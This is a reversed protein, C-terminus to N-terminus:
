IEGYRYKTSAEILQIEAASLDFLTYVRRNLDTELHIITQTRQHYQAQKQALWEEWEDREALPIDRKFSKKLEARFAPFDLNWWAALKQNLPYGPPILDTLLRHHAQRHLHYRAQAQETLALALQGIAEREAAPADPIPLRSIFQASLTYRLLGGREGIPICLRSIAFWTVRTMLIGLLYPNKGPIMFTTKNGVISPEALAFRPTKAMEPWFIKYGEFDAYYNCPRLEWWYTGKDARKQGPETFPALHQAITPHKASLESWAKDETLGPGFINNTWRDPLLILWHGEDEIHWSRVDAGNVLPKIIDASSPDAKVLQDRTSQDIIFADNLGTLVGRYMQGNVVKGLPQGRQMLKAFLGRGADDLQWGSDPQDHITLPTLKAAVQRDFEKLGEGRSFVATQATHDPPPPDRRVVHIAPYLDPADAFVRNDGLDLLTELTTHQRLYARLPGAYNARLWSNSSIYSLRGGSGTFRVPKEFRDPRDPPQSQRLLRLGQAFFYIFLDATGAYVEPYTQAFYAKYPGLEEQRVYPPNGIVADFGAAPNLQGHTDFFVEPFELEWHFFRREATLQAAQDLLRQYQPLAFGGHLLYRTLGRWLTEDMEPLGFARASWVDALRRASATVEDIVQRYLQEAQKVEALTDSHLQEIQSMFGSATRMSGAFASDDLMSLQGAALAAAETQRQKKGSRVSKNFRDPRGMELPLDAVRVGVLSNGCRLHHDLFSLPKGKAVTALWLSLKALEVALPNLDVGYLCNQAVRRRWYALDSEAAAEAPRPLGLSVLHRALYDAAEVLFHGSGMSPDLVNLSLIAESLGSLNGFGTLDLPDLKALAPGITQEVIYKVIYDPTYYSGTAKREGKDTILYVQGPKVLPLGSLNEFGSLDQYVERGKELRITLPQDAVRLHYELLGEYIRGLHRIELDRYDVFVPRRTQPDAARALLDIAQRLPRDGVQYRTLFSDPRPKFLGGNYAPVALDPNGQDIVTWLQRLLPWITAMSPAAPHGQDLERALRKKLADLSYSRSYLPNDPVPLLGRSEAYLTFLLRYLIILSNDYIAKLTAPTPSLQNAPFDLFGQALHRLAEYVQEKLTDSVGRAYARSQELVRNLWAPGAPGAMFAERRFFLYFYKLAEPQGQQLLAPLDVEYYIDLKEATDRHYLRWYRGNTLLGWPLGSYQLYLYIQLSPNANLDLGHTGGTPDYAQDLSREWAKADAVALATTLAQSDLPGSKAQATQRATEDPYLFYDPKRTGFPTKLAVQVNFTHGLARLVPRIWAEETQAENAHTPTFAAWLRTLEALPASGDAARWEPQDLLRHDLYYDAFLYHNRHSALARQIPEAM